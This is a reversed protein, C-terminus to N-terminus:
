INIKKLTEILARERDVLEKALTAGGTAAKLKLGLERKMENIKQVDHAIRLHSDVGFQPKFGKLSETLVVDVAEFEKKIKTLDLKM